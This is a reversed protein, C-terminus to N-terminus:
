QVLVAMAQKGPALTVTVEGSGSGELDDEQASVCGSVLLIGWLVALTRM